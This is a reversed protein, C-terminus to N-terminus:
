VHARGIKDPWATSQAWVGASSALSMVSATQIFERRQM